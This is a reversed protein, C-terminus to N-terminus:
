LSLLNELGVILGKSENVHKVAMVVGPMFCERSITEHSIKLTQGPAGFIVDQNALYGPLRV